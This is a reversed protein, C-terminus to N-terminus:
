FYARRRQLVPFAENREIGADTILKAELNSISTQEQLQLM